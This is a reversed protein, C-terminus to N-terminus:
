GARPLRSAFDVVAQPQTTANTSLMENQYHPDSLIDLLWGITTASVGPMAELWDNRLLLTPNNSVYQFIRHRAYEIERTLVGLVTKVSRLVIINAEQERNEEMRQMKQLQEVRCLLLQLEYIEPSVPTWPALRATQEQNASVTSEQQRKTFTLIKASPAISSSHDRHSVEALVGADSGLSNITVSSM